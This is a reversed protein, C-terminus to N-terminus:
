ENSIAGEGTVRPVSVEIRKGGSEFQDVDIFGNSRQVVLYVLWLGLGSGHYLPDRDENGELIKLEMEPIPPGGDEIAITVFEETRDVEVSVDPSESESHVVANDILELLGTPIHDTAFGPADPVSRLAIDAAPYRKEAERHVSRVTEVIDRPQPAPPESLIETIRREKEATELLSETVEVIRDTYLSTADSPESAILDTYGLVVNLDNRLTHRLTRGLVQIQRLRRKQSTVDRTIIAVKRRGDVVLPTFRFEGVADGVPLELDLEVTVSDEFSGGNELAANIIGRYKEVEEDALWKEGLEIASHGLLRDRPVDIYSTVARNVFELERDDNVIFAVSHINELITESQRAEIERRKRTSIDHIFGELTAEGDGVPRVYQGQEWVWKEEGDATQIRYTTRFPRDEDIGAQVDEYVQERHDPHIVDDGWSVEGELLARAEYGSLEECQGRVVEMPWGRENRCRYIMGPLNEVLTDLRRDREQIEQQGVSVLFFIAIGTIGVFVLDSAPHSILEKSALGVLPAWDFLTLWLSITVVYGASIVLPSTM